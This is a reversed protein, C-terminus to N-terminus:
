SPALGMIVSSIKSRAYSHAFSFSAQTTPIGTFSVTFIAAPIVNLHTGTVLVTRGIVIVASGILGIVAPKLGSMIGSVLKSSKFKEYIRAVILIIIFSPLM